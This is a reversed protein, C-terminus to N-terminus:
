WHTQVTRQSDMIRLAPHPFGARGSGHPAPRAVARDVRYVLSTLRVSAPLVDTRGFSRRSIGTSAFPTEAESRLDHVLPVARSRFSAFLKELGPLADM